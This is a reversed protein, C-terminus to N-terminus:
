ANLPHESESDFIDQFSLDTSVTGSINQSEAIKHRKQVQHEIDINERPKRRSLSKSISRLPSFLSIRGKDEDSVKAAPRNQIGRMVPKESAKRENQLVTENISLKAVLQKIPCPEQQSLPVEVGEEAPLPPQLPVNVRRKLSPEKVPTVCGVESNTPSHHAEFGENEDCDYSSDLILACSEPTSNCKSTLDLQQAASQMGGDVADLFDMFLGDTAAEMGVCSLNESIANLQINYDGGHQYSDGCKFPDKLGHFSDYDAPATTINSILSMDECYIDAFSVEPIAKVQDYAVLKVDEHLPFGKLQQRCGPAESDHRQKHGWIPNLGSKRKYRPFRLRRRRPKLESDDKLSVRAAISYDVSETEPDNM